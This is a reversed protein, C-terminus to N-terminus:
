HKAPPNIASREREPRGEKLAELLLDSQVGILDISQDHKPLVQDLLTSRQVGHQYLILQLLQVGVALLHKAPHGAEVVAEDVSARDTPQM